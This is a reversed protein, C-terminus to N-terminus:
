PRPSPRGCGPPRCPRVTAFATSCARTCPPSRPSPSCSAASRTSSLVKGLLAVNDFIAGRRVIRKKELRALVRRIQPGLKGANKRLSQIELKVGAAGLLDELGPFWFVRDPRKRSSHTLLRLVWRSILEKYGDNELASDGSAGAYLHPRRRLM